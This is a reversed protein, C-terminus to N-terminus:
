SDTLSSHGALRPHLVPFALRQGDGPSLWRGLVRGVRRQLHAVVLVAAALSQQGPQGDRRLRGHGRRGAGERLAGRVAGVQGASKWRRGGGRGRNIGWGYDQHVGGSPLGWLRPLGEPGQM